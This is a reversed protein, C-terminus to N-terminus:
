RNEDRERAGNRGFAAAELSRGDGRVCAIGVGASVGALTMTWPRVDVPWLM